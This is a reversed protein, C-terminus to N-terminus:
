DERCYQAIHEDYIMRAVELNRTDGTAVLDAYALIPHVLGERLETDLEDLQEPWFPRYILVTGAGDGTWETAKRLRADRLLQTRAHEPLYM